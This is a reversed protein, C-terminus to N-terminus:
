LTAPALELPDAAVTAQPAEKLTKNLLEDTAEWSSVMAALTALREQNIDDRIDAEIVRTEAKGVLSKLAAEITMAHYPPEPKFEVWSKAMAGAMNTNKGKTFKLEKALSDYTIKGFAELYGTLANVRSGKPMAEVLTQALTVDGHKDTHQIVSAAAVWIMGDLKKGTASIDEIAAVIDVKNTFLKM